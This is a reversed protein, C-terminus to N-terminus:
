ATAPVNTVDCQSLEISRPNLPQTRVIQQVCSVSVDLFLQFAQVPQETSCLAGSPARPCVYTRVYMRVNIHQLVAKHYRIVDAMLNMIIVPVYICVYMFLYICVYM